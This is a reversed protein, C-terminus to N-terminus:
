NSELLLSLGIKHANENIRTTDFLGALSVKVGPRIVQTYGLGLRGGNDIKAKVFTTRDLTYKAGVEIGVAQANAKSDWVAKGGAELDANVRHFYSGSFVSCAQSANLALSYEPVAYGIAANYRTVRGDHVNYAVDGGVLFGEHGVVLDSAVAPGKFLDVNTRSHLKSHKYETTLKVNKQGVAPLLSANVALKLGRALKDAVEIEGTLLNSSSWAETFTVGNRKDTYKTKLEGNIVGSKNDKAGTATFNVGSFTNTKVELKVSGAPYDKGLLDNVAKGIDTFPVPAAM